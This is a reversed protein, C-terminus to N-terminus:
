IMRSHNTSYELEGHPMARSLFLIEITNAFPFLGGSYVGARKFRDTSGELRVSLFSFMPRFIWKVSTGLRASQPEPSGLRHPCTFHSGLAGIM